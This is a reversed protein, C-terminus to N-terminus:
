KVKGEGKYPNEEEFYEEYRSIMDNAYDIAFKIKYQNSMALNYYDWDYENEMEIRYCALNALGSSINKIINKINQKAEQYSLILNYEKIYDNYKEETMEELDKELNDRLIELNTKLFKNKELFENYLKKNELRINEINM